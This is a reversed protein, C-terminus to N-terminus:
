ELDPNVKTSENTAQNARCLSYKGVLMEVDM